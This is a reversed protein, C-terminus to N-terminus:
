CHTFAGIVASRVMLSLTSPSSSPSLYAVPLHLYHDVTTWTVARWESDGYNGLNVPIISPFIQPRPFSPHPLLLNRNWCCCSMRSQSVSSKRGRVRGGGTVWVCVCLDSYVRTDLNFLVCIVVFPLIEVAWETLQKGCHWYICASIRIRLM